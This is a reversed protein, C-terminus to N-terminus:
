VSPGVMSVYLCEVCPMYQVHVTHIYTHATLTGQLTANATSTVSSSCELVRYNYICIDTAATM